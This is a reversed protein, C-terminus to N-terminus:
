LSSENKPNILSNYLVSQIRPRYDYKGFKNNNMTPYTRNTLFVFILDEIPDIWIVTGTFGLHGFVSDNALESMNMRKDTDLEKMDFGIARRTSRPHRTTYKAILEPSLIQQGGWSGGNLLLQGLVALEHANSFLGAHGCVGGLMAAGMDHVHGQLQQNRFYIDEETPVINLRKHKQLPLFGTFKLGLPRYINEYAFSDIRLGSQNKIIRHMMYFALDSYKYDNNERLSCSIVKNWITDRYDDRLFLKRAVEISFNEQSTSRYFEPLTKPKKDESVTSKYFPIWGRLGGHHALVDKIVLNKKNTTDLESLYSGLTEDPNFRGQEELKMLSLTSAMIKTLSAVDYIDTLKVARKKQYTHYGYAKELVVKGNKAVLIQCGPAAEKKIMEEVIADIAKLSDSSLGVQEPTSYGFKGQQPLHEGQGFVFQDSATIPLKGNIDYVGMLGQAAVEQALDNDEYALVITHYDEFYKLAYPSGFITLVVNTENRLSELFTLSSETIGFNKSAYRSMDHIGVIVLDYKKLSNLMSVSAGSSLNKSAHFHKVPGFSELRKQFPTAKLEGISLSAVKKDPDMTLPLMGKQNRVLTMANEFLKETIAVAKQDNKIDSEIKTLQEIKQISDLGYQFKARLVKEVRKTISKESILGEKIYRNIEDFAKYVKNPLLVIDNGALLCEAEAQGDKFHKTVGKMEMADTFILGKFGIENKLIGQVAKNSLTTPRNPRDDIAPIQLHAVMMSGVGADSLARFPALEISDLRARSHKIVPLDYHSDVDTDGHGPFHKACAMVGNEQMGQAYAFSKSSVNYVDEGFSRDNIVPNQPNNNVDVVPAFNVNIGIRRCHEAVREGMQFILNNNQIAGLTLQKPFNFTEKPFRMGLGWEGDIAVFLPIKSIDQYKNTLRAQEQPSGQFFCLGGIHYEKILKEIEKYHSQDKKSFARIMFLQGIKQDLSMDEMQKMVWLDEKTLIRGNQAFISTCCFFFLIVCYKTM